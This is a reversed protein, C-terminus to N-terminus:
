VAVGLGERHQEPVEPVVLVAFQAQFHQCRHECGALEDGRFLIVQLIAFLTHLRAVAFHLVPIGKRNLLGFNGLWLLLNSNLVLNTLPDFLFFYDGHLFVDFGDDAISAL